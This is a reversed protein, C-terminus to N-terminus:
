PLGPESKPADELRYDGCECADVFRFIRARDSGAFHLYHWIVVSSETNRVHSSSMVNMGAFASPHSEILDPPGYVIYTRGRDTEWGPVGAAFHENAYALRRYHEEKFENEPTGPTPDRRKWFAVVFDDREQDTSLKAFEAREQSTIIYRVDENLWQQYRDNARAHVAAVPLFWLLFVPTFIGVRLHNCQM